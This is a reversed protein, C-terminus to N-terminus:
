EHSMRASSHLGHISSGNFSHESPPTPKTDARYSLQDQIKLQNSMLQAQQVAMGELLGELREMRESNVDSAQSM